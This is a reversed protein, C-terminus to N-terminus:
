RNIIITNPNVYRDRRASFTKGNITVYRKEADPDIANGKVLNNEVIQAAMYKPPYLFDVECQQYDGMFTVEYYNVTTSTGPGTSVSYDRSKFYALEKGDLSRLSLDGITVLGVRVLAAYPKKEVYITDNELRIKSDVSVTQMVPPFFCSSLFLLLFFPLLKKM